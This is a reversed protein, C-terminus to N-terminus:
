AASKSRRFSYGEKVNESSTCIHVNGVAYPGSDNDRGMVYGTKGREGWRGSSVWVEKWEPLTIEWAVGRIGANIKQRTFREAFSGNATLAMGENAELLEAYTCGYNAKANMDNIVRRSQARTVASRQRRVAHGGDAAFLGFQKLIAQARQRSFGFEDGIEEMTKGALFMEKIQISRKSTM